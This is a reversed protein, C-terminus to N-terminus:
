PESVESNQLLNLLSSDLEALRRRAGTIGTRSDGDARIKDGSPESGRAAAEFFPAIAGRLLSHLSEYPSLTSGDSGNGLIGSLPLNVVSLQKAVPLDSTIPSPRKLFAICAQTRSTYLLESSLTYVAQEQLGDGNAEGSGEGAAAEKLVYLAVQAELAFRTCRALTDELISANLLSGHGKLEESSAGLTVELVNSLYKIIDQPDVANTTPATPTGNAAGNVGQVM